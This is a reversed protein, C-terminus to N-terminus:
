ALSELLRRPLPPHPAVRSQWLSTMPTDPRWLTGDPRSRWRAHLWNYQEPWALIWPEFAANLRSTFAALTEPTAHPTPPELPAGVHITSQGPAQRIAVAPVVLCGQRSALRAPGAPCQAPLGLFPATIGGRRTNIDVMLTLIKGETIARLAARTDKRRVLEVGNGARARVFERESLPNNAHRYVVVLPLGVDAAHKMAPEWSGLHICALILPRKRAHLATLMALGDGDWHCRCEQARLGELHCLFINEFVMTALRHLRDDPLEPGYILRLNTCTWAWESRLVVRAHRALRRLREAVVPLEGHRVWALIGRLVLWELVHWPKPLGTSFSM